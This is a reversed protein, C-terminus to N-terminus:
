YLGGGSVTHDFEVPSPFLPKHKPKLKSKKVANELGSLTKAEADPQHRRKHIISGIHDRAFMIKSYLPHHHPVDPAKYIYHVATRYSMNKRLSSFHKRLVKDNYVELVIPVIDAYRSEGSAVIEAQVTHSSLYDRFYEETLLTGQTPFRALANQLDSVIKGASILQDREEPTLPTLTLLKQQVAPPLLKRALGDFLGQSADEDDLHTQM